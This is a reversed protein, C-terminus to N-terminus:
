GVFNAAYESRIVRGTSTMKFEYFSSQGATISTVAGGIYTSGFAPVIATSGNSNKVEVEFTDGAIMNTPDNFTFATASTFSIKHVTGNLINPTYSAAGGGGNIVAPANVVGAKIQPADVYDTGNLRVRHGAGRAFGIPPLAMVVDARFNTASGISLAGSAFKGTIKHGDGAVTAASVTVTGTTNDINLENNANASGANIYHGFRQIATGSNFTGISVKNRKTDSQTQGGGSRLVNDFGVPSGALLGAAFSKIIVENDSAAGIQVIYQSAYNFEDAGLTNIFVKNHLANENLAVLSENASRATKRYSISNVKIDSGISCGALDIPKKDCRIAKVNVNSFCVANTFIGTLGTIESFNFDCNLFGGRELANGDVSSIKIGDIKAGYCCYLTRVGFIDLTATDAKAIRLDSVADLIPFELEVVGTGADASLVRNMGGYLPLTVSGSGTYFRASSTFVLSGVAFNAADAATSTQVFRQGALVPNCVYHTLGAYESPNYNGPCIALKNINPSGTFTNRIEGSGSLDLFSPIYIPFTVDFRESFEIKRRALAATDFSRQVAVENNTATVTAGFMNPHLIRNAVVWAATASYTTEIFAGVNDIAILATYDIDNKLTYTLGQYERKAGIALSTGLAQLEALTAVTQLPNLALIEDRAAESEDASTASEGASVASAAAAAVATAVSGSLDTLEDADFVPVNPIDFSGGTTTVRLDYEATDAFASFYGREVTTLPNGLSNGGVAADWLQAQTTYLGDAIFVEVSAGIVANGSPDQVFDQLIGRSM